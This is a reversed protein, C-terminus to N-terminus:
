AGNLWITTALGGFICAPFLWGWHQLGSVFYTVFFLVSAGIFIYMWTTASFEELYGLNQALFLGGGLILLIGWFANLWTNKM